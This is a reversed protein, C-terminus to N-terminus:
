VFTEEKSFHIIKNILESKVTNNDYLGTEPDLGVNIDLSVMYNQINLTSEIDNDNYGCVLVNEIENNKQSNFIRKIFSDKNHKFSLRDYNVDITIYQAYDFGFINKTYEYVGNDSQFISPMVTFKINKLSSISKSFEEVSKYQNKIYVDLNLINKLYDIFVGKKNSNSIYFTGTNIYYLGFLQNKLEIQFPKRPNPEEENKPENYVTKSRKHFNDYNAYIWLYDQIKNYEIRFKYIKDNNEDIFKERQNNEIKLLMDRDPIKGNIILQMNKFSLRM